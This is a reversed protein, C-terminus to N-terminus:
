DSNFGLSILNPTFYSTKKIVTELEIEQKKLSNKNNQIKLQHIVATCPKM